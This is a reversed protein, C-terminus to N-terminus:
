GICQIGFDEGLIRFVLDLYLMPKMTRVQPTGAVAVYSSMDYVQDDDHNCHHSTGFNHHNYLHLLLLFM